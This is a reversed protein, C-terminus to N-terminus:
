GGKLLMPMHWNVTYLGIDHEKKNNHTCLAEKSSDNRQWQEVSYMGQTTNMAIVRKLINYLTVGWHWDLPLTHLNSFTAIAHADQMNYYENQMYNCGQLIDHGKINQINTKKLKNKLHLSKKWTCKKKKGIVEIGAVIEQM